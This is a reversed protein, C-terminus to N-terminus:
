NHILHVLVKGWGDLFRPEFGVNGPLLHRKKANKETRDIRTNCNSSNQYYFFILKSDLIKITRIYNEHIHIRIWRKKEVCATKENVISM